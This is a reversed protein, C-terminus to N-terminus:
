KWATTNTEQWSKMSINPDTSGGADKLAEDFHVDGDGTQHYNKSVIAGYVAAGGVNSVDSAPAYIAGYFDGQGAVKIPSSGTAYLLFNPPTNAQTAIGKGSIDVDGDVYITVPGLAELQAQGAIKISSYHYTGAQLQLNTRGSININGEVALNTGAPQYNKPAVAASQTGSITAGGTLSIVANPDAGPGVEADGQIDANGIIRMTANESSDTGIDGNSDANDGGYPGNRSDYSDVLPNGNIQMSEDAFVAFNFMSNQGIEAHTIITRTEYARTTNINSPSFGTATIQRINPAGQPTTVTVQYGGQVTATSMNVYGASGAYTPDAAIQAIALDIGAEAMNFAVIKNQNRETAQIFGNARSFLALSGVSLVTILMYSTILIFGNKNEILRGMRTKCPKRSLAKRRNFM